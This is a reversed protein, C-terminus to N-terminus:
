RAMRRLYAETAALGAALDYEPAYGLRARAHDIRCIGRGTFEELLHHDPEM